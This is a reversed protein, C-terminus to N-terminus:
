KKLTLTASASSGGDLTAIVDVHRTMIVNKTGLFWSFSESTKGAPIIYRPNGMVWALQTKDTTLTVPIGGAPAPGSLQITFIPDKYNKSGKVTNPTLSASTITVPSPTSSTGSSINLVNSYRWQGIYNARCRVQYVGPNVSGIFGVANTGTQQSDIVSGNKLLEWQWSVGIVNTNAELGLSPYLRFLNVNFFTASKQTKQGKILSIELQEEEEEKQAEIEALKEQSLRLKMAWEPKLQAIELAKDIKPQIKRADVPVQKKEQQASVLGVVTLCFASFILTKLMKQIVTRDSHYIKKKM